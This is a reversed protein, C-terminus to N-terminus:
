YYTITRYETMTWDDSIRKGLGFARTQTRKTWNGQEDFELYKFRYVSLWGKEPSDPNAIEVRDGKENYTTTTRDNIAAGSYFIEEVINAKRRFVSKNTYFIHYLVKQTMNGAADYAYVYRTDYRDDIKAAASAPMDILIGPPREGFHIVNTKSVRFGKLYGYATIERPLGNTDSYRISKTLNGAENYYDESDKKRPTGARPGSIFQSEQFVEKVKGKLNEDAADSKAKKPAPTQPLPAPTNERVKKLIAAAISEPTMLRLSDFVKVAELEFDGQKGALLVGTRVARNKVWFVRVLCVSDSLLIRYQMGKHGEHTLTKKDVKIIEARTEFYDRAFGDYTLDVIKKTEAELDAGNEIDHDREIIGATFYGETLRWGGGHTHAPLDISFGVEISSFAEKRADALSGMPRIMHSWIKQGFVVSSLLLLTIAPILTRYM